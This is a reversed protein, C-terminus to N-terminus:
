QFKGKMFFFSLQASVTAPKMAKLCHLATKSLDLHHSPNNHKFLRSSAFVSCHNTISGTLVTCKDQCLHKAKPQPSRLRFLLFTANVNCLLGGPISWFLAKGPSTVTCQLFPQLLDGGHICKGKWIFLGLLSPSCCAVITESRLWIQTM